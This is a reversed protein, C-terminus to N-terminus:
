AGTVSAWGAQDPLDLSDFTRIAYRGSPDVTLLNDTGRLLWTGYVKSIDSVPEPETTPWLLALNAGAVSVPSVRTFEWMEAPASRDVPSECGVGSEKTPTARLLGEPSITAAWTIDCTQAGSGVHEVFGGPAPGYTLPSDTQAFPDYPKQSQTLTGDEHFTWLWSDHSWIGALETTTLAPSTASADPPAADNSLALAGLVVGTVACAAVAGQWITRRLDKRSREQKGELERELRNIDQTTM